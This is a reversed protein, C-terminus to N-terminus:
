HGLLLPPFYRYYLELRLGCIALMYCRDRRNDGSEGAYVAIPPFSGGDAQGPLAFVDDRDRQPKRDATYHGAATVQDDPKAGILM